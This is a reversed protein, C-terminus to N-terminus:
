LGALTKRKIAVTGGTDIMTVDAARTGHPVTLGIRPNESPSISGTMTVFDAGDLDVEVTEVYPMPIFLLSIQNM